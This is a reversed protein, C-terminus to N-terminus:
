FYYCLESPYLLLFLHEPALPSGIELGSRIFNHLFVGNRGDVLIYGSTKGITLLLGVYTREGILM